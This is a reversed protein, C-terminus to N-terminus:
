FCKCFVIHIPSHFKIKYHSLNFINHSFSYLSPNANERKGMNNEFTNKKMNMLFWFQTIFPTPNGYEQMHHDM